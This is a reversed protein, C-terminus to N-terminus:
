FYLIFGKIGRIFQHESNMEFSFVKAGLVVGKGCSLMLTKLMSFIPIPGELEWVKPGQRAACRKVAEM